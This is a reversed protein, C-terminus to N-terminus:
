RSERESPGARGSPLVKAPYPFRESLVQKAQQRAGTLLIIMGHAFFTRNVSLEPSRAARPEARCSPHIEIIM